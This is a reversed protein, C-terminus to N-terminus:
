RRSPSSPVRVISTALARGLTPKPEVLALVTDGASLEAPDLARSRRQISAETFATETRAHRADAHAPADDSTFERVDARASLEITIASADPPRLVLQGREGSSELVTCWIFRAIDGVLIVHARLAAGGDTPVGRAMVRSGDAVDSLRVFKTESWALGRRRRSRLVTMPNTTVRVLAGQTTRVYFIGLLPACTAVTGVIMAESAAVTTAPTADVNSPTATKSSTEM